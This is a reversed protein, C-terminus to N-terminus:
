SNDESALKEQHARAVGKNGKESAIKMERIYFHRRELARFKLNIATEPYLECLELLFNKKVCMCFTNNEDVKDSPKVEDDDGSSDDQPLYKSYDNPWLTKFTYASKLDFFIQYDGFFSGKPLILHPGRGLKDCVGISGKCIFSMETIVRGAQVLQTRPSMIRTHMNIIFENCFGRQCPDFFHGFEYKFDDFLLDM